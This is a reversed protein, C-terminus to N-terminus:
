VPAWYDKLRVKFRPGIAEGDEKILRQERTWLWPM